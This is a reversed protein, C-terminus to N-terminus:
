KRYFAMVAEAFAKPSEQPANHGVGPLVRREYDGTFHRGHNESSHVPTVDDDAGHLVITPVEIAPQAALQTELFAYAPDGPVRGTRHRYSHIVVDVFDDNDFAGATRDFTADDFTWSPSWM